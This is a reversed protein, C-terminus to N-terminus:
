LWNLDFLLFEISPHSQNKAWRGRGCGAILLAALLLVIRKMAGHNRRDVLHLPCPWVVGV